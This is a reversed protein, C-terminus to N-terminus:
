YDNDYGSYFGSNYFRRKSLEVDEGDKVETDPGTGGVSAPGENM